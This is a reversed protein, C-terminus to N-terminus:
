MSQALHGRLQRLRMRLLDAAPTRREGFERVAQEIVAKLGFVKEAPAEEMFDLFDSERAILVEEGNLNVTGFRVNYAPSAQVQTSM